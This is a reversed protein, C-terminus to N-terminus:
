PTGQENGPPRYLLRVGDGFSFRRATGKADSPAVHLSGSTIQGLPGSGVVKNGAVVAGVRLDLTARDSDLAYGDSTTIVVNGAMDLRQTPIDLDGTAAKVTIQPGDHLDVTGALDTIAARQPPAADPVVLAATFRFRDEGRTTGTFIPNSVKLGAGLADVDGQSFVVGGITDDTQVLFLAALLGLAILPLGIKLVSVIWSHWRDDSAM